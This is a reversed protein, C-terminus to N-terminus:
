AFYLKLYTHRSRKHDNTPWLLTDFFLSTKQWADCPRAQADKNHGVLSQM